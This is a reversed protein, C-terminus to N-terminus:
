RSLVGKKTWGLPPFIDNLVKANFIVKIGAAQLENISVKGWENEDGMVYAFYIDDSEKEFFYWEWMSGPMGCAWGICPPGVGEKDVFVPFEIKNKM